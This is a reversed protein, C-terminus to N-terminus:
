KLVLAGAGGDLAAHYLFLYVSGSVIDGTTAQAAGATKLIKITSLEKTGSKVRGTLDGSSNANALAWYGLGTAYTHAGEEDLQPTLTIVNAAMSFDCPIIPFGPALQRWLGELFSIGYETLTGTQIDVFQFTRQPPSPAQAQPM